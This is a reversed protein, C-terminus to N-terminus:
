AGEDEPELLGLWAKANPKAYERAVAISMCECSICVLRIGAGLDM